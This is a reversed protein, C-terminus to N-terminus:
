DDLFILCVHAGHDALMGGLEDLTLAVEDIAVLPEDPSLGPEVACRVVRGRPRWRTHAEDWAVQPAGIMLEAIQAIWRHHRDLIEGDSLSRGGGGLHVTVTLGPLAAYEILAADGLRRIHVEAHVEAM